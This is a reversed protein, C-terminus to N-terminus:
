RLNGKVIRKTIPAIGKETITMLYMGNTYSRMDLQHNNTANSLTQEAVKKGSIHFLELTATEGTITYNLNLLNSVPNPFTTLEKTVTEAISIDAVFTESTRSEAAAVLGSPTSFPIWDTFPSESGDACVTRLRFEYDRGSPAFIHVRSSRVLGRGIIRTQGAFRIEILYRDVSSIDEWDIRIKRSSLVEVVIDRPAVCAEGGDECDTGTVRTVQVSNSLNYCGVFQNVNNDLALGTLGNEYSLHWVFCVGVGAEDFDPM